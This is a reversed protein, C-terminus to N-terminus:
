RLAEWDDPAVAPEYPDIYTLSVRELPHRLSDNTSAGPATISVDVVEGAHFPLGTLQVTGGEGVQAKLHLAQM